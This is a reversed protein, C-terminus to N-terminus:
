LSFMVCLPDNEPKGPHAIVLFQSSPLSSAAESLLWSGQCNGAGSRDEDFIRPVRVQLVPEVFDDSTRSAMFRDLEEVSDGHKKKEDLGTDQARAGQDHRFSREGAAYTDLSTKLM